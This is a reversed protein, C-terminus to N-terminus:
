GLVNAKLGDFLVRVVWSAYNTSDGESFGAAELQDEVILTALGHVTSWATLALRQPDDERVVGDTQCTRLVDVLLRFTKEYAKALSPHSTKRGIEKANFLRFHSRHTVAFTVYAVGIAALEASPTTARQRAELMAAHLLGVGEEAVAALLAGKDAFHNYPANPSVGVRRAVERLTIAAVGDSESLAVTADLLARRLSGHHYQSRPKKGRAAVPKRRTSM